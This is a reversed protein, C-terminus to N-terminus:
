IICPASMLSVPEAPVGVHGVTGRCWDAVGAWRGYGEAPTIHGGGEDTGSANWSFPMARYELNLAMWENAYIRLGVAFSATIAVRSARAQTALCETSSMTMDGTCITAGDTNVEVRENVGAFAVGLAIYMDADLFLKQFLSLKGRLPIFVGQLAAAWQIQGVQNGFGMNSPLSLRNRNTTQGLKTVQDTLSTNIQIPAYFGWVGLQALALLVGFVRASRSFM